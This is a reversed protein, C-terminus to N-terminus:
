QLTVTVTATHCVNTTTLIYIFFPHRFFVTHTHTHTHTVRDVTKLRKYKM